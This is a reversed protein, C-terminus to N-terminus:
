GNDLAGKCFSAHLWARFDEGVRIMWATRVLADRTVSDKAWSVRFDVVFRRGYESPEEEIAEATLVVRLIIKRLQEADNKDIGLAALFVRAKHKGKPHDPNLCYDQIKVIDVVANKANPLKM